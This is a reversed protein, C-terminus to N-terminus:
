RVVEIQCSEMVKLAAEHKEESTGACMDALVKITANPFRTRLIIANSIVCIDTAVGVIEILDPTAGIRRDVDRGWDTYGFSSKNIVQGYGYNAYKFLDDVICWGPTEKVCHVVPLYKGELTNLYQSSHTDRTFLVHDKQNVYNTDIYSSIKPIIEKAGLIPLAGDVFDNQMDIVILVKSM